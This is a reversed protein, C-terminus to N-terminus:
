REHHRRMDRRSKINEISAYITINRERWIDFLTIEIIKSDGMSHIIADTEVRTWPPAYIVKDGPKFTDNM